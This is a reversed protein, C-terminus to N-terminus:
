KWLDSIDAMSMKINDLHGPEIISKQYKCKVGGNRYIPKLQKEAQDEVINIKKGPINTADGLFYFGCWLVSDDYTKNLMEISKDYWSEDILGYEIQYKLKMKLREFLLKGNEKSMAKIFDNYHKKLSDGDVSQGLYKFDILGFSKGDFVVFDARPYKDEKIFLHTEVDIVVLSEKDPNYVSNLINNKALVCQISKEQPFTPYSKYIRRSLYRTYAAFVCLDLLLPDIKTQKDKNHSTILNLFKDEAPKDLDDFLGERYFCEPKRKKNKYGDELYVRYDKINDALKINGSATDIEAISGGYAWIRIKGKYKDDNEPGLILIPKKLINLNNVLEFKEGIFMYRFEYEKNLWQLYDKVDQNVKIDFFDTMKM